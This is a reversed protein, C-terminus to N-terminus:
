SVRVRYFWLGDDGRKRDVLLGLKRLDRIRASASAEPADARISIDSLTRWEGDRMAAWVAKAQRNLREYDFKREYTSGDRDTDPPTWSLLDAQM